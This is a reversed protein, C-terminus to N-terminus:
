YVQHSIFITNENRTKWNRVRIELHYPTRSPSNEHRELSSNHSSKASFNETGADPSVLSINYTDKNSKEYKIKMNLVLYHLQPKLERGTDSIVVQINWILCRPLFFRSSHCLLVPVPYGLLSHFTRPSKWVKGLCLWLQCKRTNTIARNWTPISRYSSWQGGGWVNWIWVRWWLPEM